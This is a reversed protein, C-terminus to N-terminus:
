THALVSNSRLSVMSQGPHASSESYTIYRQGRCKFFTSGRSLLTEREDDSIYAMPKAHLGDISMLADNGAPVTVYTWGTSYKRRFNGDFIIESTRCAFVATDRRESEQESFTSEQQKVVLEGGEELYILGGPPFLYQLLAKSVVRSNQFADHTWDLTAKMSDALYDLLLSISKRDADDSDYVDDLANTIQERFHYFFHYPSSLIGEQSLQANQYYKLGDISFIDDLFQQVEPALIKVIENGELGEGQGEEEEDSDVDEHNAPRMHSRRHSKRSGCVYNRYVVFSTSAHSKEYYNESPIRRRGDWHRHRTVPDYSIDPADFFTTIQDSGSCNVRHLTHWPKRSKSPAAYRRLRVNEKQLDLIQKDRARLKHLLLKEETTGQSVCSADGPAGAHSEEDASYEPSGSSM